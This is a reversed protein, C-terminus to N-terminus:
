LQSVLAMKPGNAVSECRGYRAWAPCDALGYRAYAMRFSPKSDNDCGAISGRPAAVVPARHDVEVGSEPKRRHRPRRNRRYSHLPDSKAMM